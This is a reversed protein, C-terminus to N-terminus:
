SSSRRSSSSSSNASSGGRTGGGGEKGPPSTALALALSVACFCMGHTNAQRSVLRAHNHRMQLQCTRWADVRFPEARLGWAECARADGVRAPDRGRARAVLGLFLLRRDGRLAARAAYVLPLPPSPPMFPPRPPRSGGPMSPPLARHVRLLGSRWRGEGRPGLGLEILRILLTKLPPRARLWLRLRLWLRALDVGRSRPPSLTWPPPPLPLPLPPPRGTERPGVRSPSSASDRGVRALRPLSRSVAASEAARAAGTRCRML